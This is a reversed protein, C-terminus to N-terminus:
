ETAELPCWPPRHPPIATRDTCIAAGHDYDGVPPHHCRHTWIVGKATAEANPAYSACGFCTEPWIRDPDSM